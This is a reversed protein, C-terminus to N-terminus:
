VVPVVIAMTKVSPNASDARFWVLNKASSIGVKIKDSGNLVILNIADLVFKLSLNVEKNDTGQVRVVDGVVSDIPSEGHSTIEVCEGKLTFQANATRKNSAVTKHLNCRQNLDTASMEWEHDPMATILPQINPYQGEVPAAAVEITLENFAVEMRFLKDAVYISCPEDSKVLRSLVFLVDNPVIVDIDNIKDLGDNTLHVIGIRFGDTGLIELDNKRRRICISDLVSHHGGTSFPTITKAVQAFLHASTITTEDAKPSLMGWARVEMNQMPVSLKTRGLKLTHNKKSNIELTDESGGKLFALLRDAEIVLQSPMDSQEDVEFSIRLSMTQNNVDLYCTNAKVEVAVQENAGFASKYITLAEVLNKKPIFSM